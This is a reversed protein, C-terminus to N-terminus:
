SSTGSAGLLSDMENKAQSRASADAKLESTLEAVRNSAPTGHEVGSAYLAQLASAADALRRAFLDRAAKYRADLGSTAGASPQSTSHVFLEDLRGLELATACCAAVLESANARGADEQKPDFSQDRTAFLPRAQRVVEGLLQRADGAPLMQLTKHLMRQLRLPLEPADAQNPVVAVGARASARVLLMAVVPTVLWLVPSAVMGAMFGTVLVACVLVATGAPITPQASRSASSIIPAPSAVPAPSPATV